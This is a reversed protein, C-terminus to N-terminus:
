LFNAQWPLKSQVTPQEFVLNLFSRSLGRLSPGLKLPKLHLCVERVTAVTDLSARVLCLYYPSVFVNQNIWVALAPQTPQCYMTNPLSLFTALYSELKTPGSRPHMVGRLAEGRDSPCHRARCQRQYICTRRDATTARM